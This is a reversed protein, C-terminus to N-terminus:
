ADPPALATATAAKRVAAIQRWAAELLDDLGKGTVGSIRHLPLDLARVREELRTLRTPDDLVDIKNAAVIQPKSAVKEDFLRLEHLIM